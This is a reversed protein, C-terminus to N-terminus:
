IIGPRMTVGDTKKNSMCVAKAARDTIEKGVEIGISESFYFFSHNSM